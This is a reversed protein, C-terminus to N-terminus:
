LMDPSLAAKLVTEASNGRKRSCLWFIAGKKVNWSDNGEALLRSLVAGLTPQHGVVLVSGGRRPWGAAELIAEVEAEPALADMTTFNRSLAAATQQARVAPSALIRADKPLRELLWHAMRAAQRHGKETLARKADPFGDEAEAHRWLILDMTNNNV